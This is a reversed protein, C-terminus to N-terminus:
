RVNRSDSDDVLLPRGQQAYRGESVVPPINGGHKINGLATIVLKQLQLSVPNQWSLRIANM